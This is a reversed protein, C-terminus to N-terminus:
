GGGGGGDDATGKFRVKVKLYRKAGDNEHGRDMSVIIMMHLNDYSDSESCRFPHHTNEASFRAPSYRATGPGVQSYGATGPEAM